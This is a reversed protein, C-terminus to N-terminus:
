VSAQPVQFYSELFLNLGYKTNESHNKASSIACTINDQFYEICLITERHYSRTQGGSLCESKNLFQESLVTVGIKIM